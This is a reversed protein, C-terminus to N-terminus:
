FPVRSCDTYYNCGCCRTQDVARGQVRCFVYIEERDGVNIAAARCRTGPDPVCSIVENTYSHGYIGLDKYCTGSARCYGSSVTIELNTWEASLCLIPGGGGGGNEPPCVPEPGCLDPYLACWWAEDPTRGICYGKPDVANIPNGLVYAFGNLQQPFKLFAQFDSGPFGKPQHQKPLQASGVNFKDFSIFRGLSSKYYRSVAYDLGTEADRYLNTYKKEDNATATIEEGYPWYDKSSIVNGNIDTVKRPTRSSDQHYWYMTGNGNYQIRAGAAHLYNKQWAGNSYEGIGLVYLTAAGGVAKKVRDGAGDYWYTAITGNDVKILRNEADYQYTRQPDATLNGANDYTYGAANIRNTAPDISLSLSPPILAGIGAGTQSLRNGFRDYSWSLTWNGLPHQATSVRRLADFTYNASQTTDLNNTIAASTSNNSVGENYNYSIDLLSGLNPPVGVQMRTGQLRSNYTNTRSLQGAGSGFNVTQIAGGATYGTVQILSAPHNADSISSTIATLRNAANFTEALFMGNPHTISVSDGIFNFNRALALNGGVMAVDDFYVTGSGSLYNLKIRMAQTANATYNVSIQQWTQGPTSAATSQSNAGTTDDAIIQVQATTGSDARVWASVAWVQGTTLGSVNQYVAGSTAGTVSLSNNGGHAQTSVVSAQVGTQVTWADTTGTEFGPNRFVATFTVGDITKAESIPRGVSDYNFTSTAIGSSLSTLRGKGNTAQASDYSYIVSSTVGGDGSYTKGTIRNLADYTVNTTINRPDTKLTLNGNNDYQYTTTLNNWEPQAESTM